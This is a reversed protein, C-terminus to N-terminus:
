LTETLLIIRSHFNSWSLTDAGCQVIKCKVPAAAEQITWVREFWTRLLLKRMAELQTRMNAESIHGLLASIDHNNLEKFRLEMNALHVQESHWKASITSMLDMATKSGDNEPGLWILIDQARSYIETMQIIQSQREKVDEQQICVADIWFSRHSQKPDIHELAISLNYAIGLEQGDVLIVRRKQPDGWTYSLATYPPPQDLDVERLRYRSQGLNDRPLTDLLRIKGIDSSLRQYEFRM